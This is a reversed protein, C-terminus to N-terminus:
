RDPNVGWVAHERGSGGDIVAQHNLGAKEAGAKKQTASPPADQLVVWGDFGLPTRRKMRPPWGRPLPSALYPHALM